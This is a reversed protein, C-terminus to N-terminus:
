MERGKIPIGTKLAVDLSLYERVATLFRTRSFERHDELYRWLAQEDQFDMSFMFEYRPDSTKWSCKVAKGMRFNEVTPLTGFAIPLERLLREREEASLDDRLNFMIIHNIM